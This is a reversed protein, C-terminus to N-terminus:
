GLGTASCRHALLLCRQKLELLQQKAKPDDEAAAQRDCDVAQQYGSAKCEVFRGHRCANIQVVFIIGGCVGDLAM